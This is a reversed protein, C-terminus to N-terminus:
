AAQYENYFVPLLSQNTDGIAQLIKMGVANRSRFFLISRVIYMKGTGLETDDM